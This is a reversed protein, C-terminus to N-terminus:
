ARAPKYDKLWSPSLEQNPFHTCFLIDRYVRLINLTTIEM